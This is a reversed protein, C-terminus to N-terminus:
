PAPKLRAKARNAAVKVKPLDKCDAAISTLQAVADTAQEAVLAEIRRLAATEVRASLDAVAHALHAQRASELAARGAPSMHWGFADETVGPVTTGAGAAAPAAPAEPPPGAPAAGKPGPKAASAPPRKAGPTAPTGRLTRLRQLADGFRGADIAAAVAQLTEEAERRQPAHMGTTALAFCEETIAAAGASRSHGVGPWTRAKFTFDSAKMAAVFDKFWDLRGKPAEPFSKGTDGEGCSIAFPIGAAAPNVHEEWTGGSHSACGIVAGPHALTFRHAFQSGGSFGYLFMRPHLRFKKRLEAFLGLLQQDTQHALGQYGDPFSPGVVVVDGRGAWAALGSAGQGNGRHGHVGVVLWYTPGQAAAAEPETAIGDPKYLFYERGMPCALKEEGAPAATLPAFAALMVLIVRFRIGHCRRM